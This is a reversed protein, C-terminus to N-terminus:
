GRVASKRICPAARVVPRFLSVSSRVEVLAFWPRNLALNGKVLAASGTSRKYSKFGRYASLAPRFNFTGSVFRTSVFGVGNGKSKRNAWEDYVLSWCVIMVGTSLFPPAAPIDNDERIGASVLWADQETRPSLCACGPWTTARFM